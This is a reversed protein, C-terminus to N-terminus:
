FHLATLAFNLMECRTLLLPTWMTNGGSNEGNVYWPQPKEIVLQSQPGPPSLIVVRIECHFYSLTPAEQACALGLWALTVPSLLCSVSRLDPINDSPLGLERTM